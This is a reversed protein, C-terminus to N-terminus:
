NSEITKGNFYHNHGAKWITKIGNVCEILNGSGLFTWGLVVGVWFVFLVVKRRSYQGFEPLIWQNIQVSYDIVFTVVWFYM